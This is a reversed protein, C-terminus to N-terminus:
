LNQYDPIEQLFVYKQHEYDMRCCIHQMGNSMVLYDVKLLLNYVSIQDLVKQSLPISPAKYELIMRPRMTTDYLVTDCRLHKDGIRLQIENALLESPYGKHETLYHVFHQRM